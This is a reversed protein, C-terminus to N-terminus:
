IEYCINNKDFCYNIEDCNYSLINDLRIKGQASIAVGISSSSWVYSGLKVALGQAKKMRLYNAVSLSDSKGITINWFKFPLYETRNIEEIVPNTSQKLKLFEQVLSTLTDMKLIISSFEQKLKSLDSNISNYNSNLESIAISNNLNTKTEIKILDNLSDMKHILMDNQLKNYKKEIKLVDNLSDIRVTLIEIQEKKSQANILSVLLLCVLLFKRKMCFSNGEFIGFGHLEQL